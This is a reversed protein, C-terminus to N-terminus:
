LIWMDNNDEIYEDDAFEESEEFDGGNQSSTIGNIMHIHKCIYHKKRLSNIQWDECTCTDKATNVTYQKPEVGKKLVIFESGKNPIILYESVVMAVASRKQRRTTSASHIV